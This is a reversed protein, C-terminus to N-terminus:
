RDTQRRLGCALPHDAVAVVLQSSLVMMSFDMLVPHVESSERSSESRLRM